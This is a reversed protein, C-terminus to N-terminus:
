VKSPEKRLSCQIVIEFDIIVRGFNLRHRGRVRLAFVSYSTNVNPDVFRRWLLVHLQVTAPGSVTHAARFLVVFEGRKDVRGTGCCSYSCYSERSEGPLGHVSGAIPEQFRAKLGCQQWV